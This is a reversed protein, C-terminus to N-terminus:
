CTAALLAPTRVLADDPRRLPLVQGHGLHLEIWWEGNKYKPWVVVQGIHGIRADVDCYIDFGADRVKACFSLDENLVGNSEFVPDALADLVNRRVLMGATGAAHVSVLGHGPLDRYCEFEDQENQHSYVVPNYPPTRKFCLPVAVDVDHALLRSLLDPDFVHDDGLIWLWDGEMESVMSNMNGVVDCSKTWILKAGPPAQQHMLSISFDAYRSLEGSLVGITGSAKTL